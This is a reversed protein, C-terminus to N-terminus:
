LIFNIWGIMLFSKHMWEGINMIGQIHFGWQKYQALCLKILV